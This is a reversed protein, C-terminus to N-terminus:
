MKVLSIPRRRELMADYQDYGHYLLLVNQVQENLLHRRRELM